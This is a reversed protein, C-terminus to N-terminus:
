GRTGEGLFGDRCPLYNGVNLRSVWRQQFVHVNFPLNTQCRDDKRIPAHCRYLNVTPIGDEDLICHFGDLSPLIGRARSLGFLVDKEIKTVFLEEVLNRQTRPM